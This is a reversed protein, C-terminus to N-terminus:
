FTNATDTSECLEFLTGQTSSPSLFAIQKGGAGQKAQGHIQQIGVKQLQLLAKELGEVSLAIHHIGEGRKEIYLAIPSTTTLPELLELKIEGLQFFAVRVGESEVVETGMYALGLHDRYLPLAQEIRNVAIGIHDVMKFLCIGGEANHVFVSDQKIM